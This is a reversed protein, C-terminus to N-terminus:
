LRIGYTEIATEMMGKPLFRLLTNVITNLLHERIYDEKIYLSVRRQSLWDGEIRRVNARQQETLMPLHMEPIITFGGNEDVIRILTEMTGAEYIRRGKARAKCFSFASERLCQAEKMIWMNEHELNEPKFVPLKRWCSESLYVWFPETYLPIEFIGQRLNGSIAIGSDIQGCVLAEQLAEAKMEEVSLEVQPYEKLYHKIFKPLLYPAISPGIALRLTGSLSGKAEAVIEQMREAEVLTREAQRILQTGITTPTVHKNTRDFIRVELEEELKVLMGSLTPQTVGCAEAAKAFSRYRDVALIYKLQQLTM